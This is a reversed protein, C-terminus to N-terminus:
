KGNKNVFDVLDMLTDEDISQWPLEDYLSIYAKNHWAYMEKVMIDAFEEKTM